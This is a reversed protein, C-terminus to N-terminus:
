FMTIQEVADLDEESGLAINRQDQVTYFKVLEAKIDDINSPTISLNNIKDDIDGFVGNLGDLIQVLRDECQLIRINDKLSELIERLSDKMKILDEANDLLKLQKLNSNFNKEIDVSSNEIINKILDVNEINVENFVKITELLSVFEYSKKRSSINKHYTQLLEEILDLSNDMIWSDAGFNKFVDYDDESDLIALIFPNHNKLKKRNDEFDFLTETTVIVVDVYNNDYDDFLIINTEPSKPISIADFVLINLM